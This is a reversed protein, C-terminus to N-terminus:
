SWPAPSPPLGHHHRGPRRRQLRPQRRRHRGPRRHRLGRRVGLHERVGARTRPGVREALDRACGVPLRRLRHEQRGVVLAPVRRQDGRGARVSQRPLQADADRRLPRAPPRARQHRVAAAAARHGPQLARPGRGRRVAAAFGERIPPRGPSATRGAGGRHGQTAQRGDRRGLGGRGVQRGRDSVISAFLVGNEGARGIVAAECRGHLSRLRALAAPADLGWLEGAPRLARAPTTSWSTRRSRAPATSSWTTSAAAACPSASARRRLQRRLRDRHAALARQHQVPGHGARRERDAPRPGRDAPQQPALPDVEYVRRKLLLHVGLGRGGVYARATEPPLEEREAPRHRRRRAARDPATRARRRAARAESTPLRM